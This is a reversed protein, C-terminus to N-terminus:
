SSKRSWVARVQAPIQLRRGALDVRLGVGQMFVGEGHLEVPADTRILGDAQRYSLSTTRLTYGNSHQLEVDDHVEIASYDSSVRGNRAKLTLQEVGQEDFFTLELNSVLMLKADAQHEARDAVLRWRAVGGDTHTYRIAQLALDIGPPLAPMTVPVKLPREYRYLVVAALVAFVVVASLLLLHRLKFLSSV